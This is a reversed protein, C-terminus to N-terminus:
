NIFNWSLGFRIVRGNMPYHPLNFAHDKNDSANIHSAMIYFRTRKLHFNAYLNVIPYGGVKNLHAQDQIVYQGIIPSYIPAEYRTFFRVDTGLESNLVKAIKFKLFLNSYLNFAPLPLLSKDSTTQFTIENEWNLIGWNMWNNLTAQLRQVPKGNQNSGVSHLYANPIDNISRSETLTEQFYVLDNVQEAHLTLSTRKYSLKAGLRLSTQNNYHENDWWANRAHYHRFYFSPTENLIQGYVHINLSDKKLPLKAFGDFRVNFEGWEKGDRNRIEGMLDYDFVKGKQRMLQAGVSFYNYHFNSSTTLSSPLTFKQYEHAVFVRAGMKLWKKWGENLEFALTNKVSINKTEDNASDCPLYYDKFFVPSIENTRLNSLFLRDNHNLNFTHVLTFPADAGHVNLKTSDIEALIPTKTISDYGITDPTVVKNRGILIRQSFLMENINMKNWTKKLNTPMDWTEYTTSFSEPETLYRDDELGGNEATKLYHLQYLFHATYYTDIYSSYIAGKFHATNQSQYYGRGYLYDLNFGLGLKKGANTAFFAKIRDEGHEKDGCEHYTINTFPSKTNTYLHDAIPKVFFDYPKQFIFQPSFSASQNDKLYRSMRPSGLNGTTLYEGKMGETFSENPFAHHLTDIVAPITLGFRTNLKWVYIGEPIDKSNSQTSDTNIENWRNGNDNAHYGPNFDNRMMNNFNGKTLQAQITLCAVCTLIFTVYTKKM